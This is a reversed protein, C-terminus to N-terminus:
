ESGKLIPAGLRRELQELKAEIDFRDEDIESNPRINRMEFTMRAGEAPFIAEVKAPFRIDDIQRYESLTTRARESGTEDYLVNEVVRWPVGEVVVRRRVIPRGIDLTARKTVPDYGAMRVDRRRLQNWTEPLFMERAIDSPSVRAPVSAFQVGDTEYFFERPRAPFELLYESGTCTLEFIPIGTVLHRAAAHLDAPRRFAIRGQRYKRVGDLEPVVLTFAGSARFNQIRRDNGALDDLIRGLSPARIPGEATEIREGLGACGTVLVLVFFSAILRSYSVIM